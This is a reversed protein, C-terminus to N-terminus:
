ILNDDKLYMFNQPPQAIWYDSLPIGSPDPYVAPDQISICYGHRIDGFYTFFEKESMGSYNLTYAWINSPSGNAIHYIDFEGIVKSVPASAYVIVTDVDKRKWIKKRYEFKKEGNFIKDAYKPKISMLVKM